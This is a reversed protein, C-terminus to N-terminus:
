EDDIEEEEEEEEEDEEDDIKMMRWLDQPPRLFGIVVTVNDASGHAIAEHCIYHALDNYDKVPNENVYAQVLNYLDSTNFVDSIGDCALIVLYDGVEIDRQCTEAQNSIMPRGPVDGLARTLNLVGNVRLEGGIVFLQGGAKEVRRGEEPDSPSHDRTVKRVELNDMIYGPSDGLWAFALEKKNMDIACCVATTGGKWCEKTSRVTMREDLLDLSTKLQKELPEESHSARTEIWTEWMHGAAYQSCEHGGHGDFVGLLGIHDSRSTDMYLSNPYAVFRDEQKHRQGKIQEASVHIGTWKTRLLPSNYTYMWLNKEAAKWINDLYAKKAEATNETVYQDPTFRCEHYKVPSDKDIQKAIWYSMWHCYEVPPGRTMLKQFISHVADGFVDHVPAAAPPNRYRIPIYSQPSETTSPTGNQPGLMEEEFTEEIFSRASRQRDLHLDEFLAGREFKIQEESPELLAHGYEEDEEIIRLYNPGLQGKRTPEQSRGTAPESSTENTKPPDSM